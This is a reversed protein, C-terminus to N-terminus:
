TKNRILFCVNKEEVTVMLNACHHIRTSLGATKFHASELITGTTVTNSKSLNTETMRGQKEVEERKLNTETMRGPQLKEVEERKLNRKTELRRKQDVQQLPESLVM